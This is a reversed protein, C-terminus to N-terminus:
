PIIMPLRLFLSSAQKGLCALVGTKRPHCTFFCAPLRNAPVAAYRSLCALVGPKGPHDNDKGGFRNM